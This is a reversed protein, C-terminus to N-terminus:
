GNNCVGQPGKRPVWPELDPSKRSNTLSKINRAEVKVTREGKSSERERKKKKQNKKKLEKKKNNTTFKTMCQFSFAKPECTKGM